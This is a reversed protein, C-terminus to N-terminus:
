SCLDFRGAETGDANRPHYVIGCFKGNRSAFDPDPTFIVRFPGPSGGGYVGTELIPYEFFAANECGAFVFAERNEFAHSFGGSPSPPTLRTINHQQSSPPFPLPTKRTIPLSTPFPALLPHKVFRPQPRQHGAREPPRAPHRRRSPLRQIPHNPNSPRKRRAHRPLHDSRYPPEDRSAESDPTQPPQYM